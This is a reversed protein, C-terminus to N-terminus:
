PVRARVAPGLDEGGPPAVEVLQEEARDHSLLSRVLDVAIVGDIRVPHAGGQNGVIAHSGQDRLGRGRRRLDIAIEPGREAVLEGEAELALDGGLHRQRDGEDIAAEPVLELVDVHVVEQAEVLRARSEVQEPREYYGALILPDM